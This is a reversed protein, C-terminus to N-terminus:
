HDEGEFRAGLESAQLLWHYPALDDAVSRSLEDVVVACAIGSAGAATLLQKAGRLQSGTEAWDDVVLVRHGELAAAEQVRLTHVRGRYDRGTQMHLERGALRADARTRIPIFGVGLVASVAGGLLFGAAEVGSVSQAGHERGIAALAEVVDRWLAGSRAIGWSNATPGGDPFDIAQRIRERLAEGASHDTGSSM